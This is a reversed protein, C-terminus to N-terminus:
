NTHYVTGAWLVGPNWTVLSTWLHRYSILFQIGWIMKAAFGDVWFIHNKDDKFKLFFGMKYCNWTKVDVETSWWGKAPVKPCVAFMEASAPADMWLISGSAFATDRDLACPKKSLVQSCRPTCMHVMLMSCLYLNDFCWVRSMRGRKPFNQHFTVTFSVVLREYSVFINIYPSDEAGQVDWTRRSGIIKHCRIESESIIGKTFAGSLLFGHQLQPLLSASQVTFNKGWCSSEM